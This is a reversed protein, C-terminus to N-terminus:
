PNRQPNTNRWDKLALELRKWEHDAAIGIRILSDEGFLRVLIGRRALHEFL